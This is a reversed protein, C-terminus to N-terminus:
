RGKTIRLSMPHIHKLYQKIDHYWPKGDVEELAQFYALVSQHRIRLIVVNSERDIEFMSALTALTDAMQNDERLTHHFTISKFCEALEKIYSYYSILKTDRTEWEDRLQHVVLASDGYVKLNKVQYELAMSISMACAEYEVMNNTYNFGLRTTFPFCKEQPSILVVGIGYGLANSAGNFWLTWSEEQVVENTLSIIDEDPFDHKMSLYDMVSNHALYDALASGKRAKQTVHLIDYKSLAVQWRAIKGTLAPKEFIYKLPDMKSILWTTYSLMYSWLRRAAWALTCCTRELSSYRMECENFKESLYYIAQERKGSEDHQGLVCGMSEELVTLYMILPRRVVSPVLVPPEKLYQKM